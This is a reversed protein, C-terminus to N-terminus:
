MTRMRKQCFKNFSVATLNTDVVSYTFRDTTCTESNIYCPGAGFKSVHLFFDASLLMQTMGDKSADENEHSVTHRFM